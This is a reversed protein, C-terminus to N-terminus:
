TRPVYRRTTLHFNFSTEFSCVTALKLTPSCALCYFLRFCISLDQDRMRFISAINKGFRWNVKVPNCPTTGWFVFASWLWRKPFSLQLLSTTSFRDYASVQRGYLLRPCLHNHDCFSLIIVRGDSSWLCEKPFFNGQATAWAQRYPSHRPKGPCSCYVPATAWRPAM